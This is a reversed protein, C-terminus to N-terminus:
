LWNRVTINVIEVDNNAAVDLLVFVRGRKEEGPM